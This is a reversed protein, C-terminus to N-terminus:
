PQYANYIFLCTANKSGANTWSNPIVNVKLLTASTDGSSLVGYGPSAVSSGNDTAYILPCLAETPKIPLALTYSTSNSTGDSSPSYYVFVEKKIMKWNKIGGSPNSSFGGEAPNFPQNIGDASEGPYVATITWFDEGNGNGTDDFNAVIYGIESMPSNDNSINSSVLVEEPLNIDTATTSDQTNRIYTFGGQYCIGIKPTFDDSSNGDNIAYIRLLASTLDGKTGAGSHMGVLAISINSVLVGRVIQGSTASRLWIYGRNGDSDAFASGDAQHVTFTGNGTGGFSFGINLIDGPKRTGFLATALLGPSLNDQEIGADFMQYLRTFREHLGTDGELLIPEQVNDQLNIGPDVPVSM